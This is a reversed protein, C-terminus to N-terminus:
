SVDYPTGVSYGVRSKEWINEPLRSITDRSGVVIIKSPFPGCGERSFAVMSLNEHRLYARLDEARKSLTTPKKARISSSRITLIRAEVDASM